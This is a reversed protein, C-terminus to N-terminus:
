STCRTSSSTTTRPTTSSRAPRSRPGCWSRARVSAPAAGGSYPRTRGSGRRPAPGPPCSSTRPRTFDLLRHNTKRIADNLAKRLTARIRQMTAPGTTRVGQVTARVQPDDSQRAIEIATNRDALVTFMAEIHEVRLQELAIAGLHPILHVRIHSEYSRTTSPEIKRRSALWQPLYEGLTIGVTATLGARIRKAVTDRDQLPKGPKVAKLLDAIEVALTSDDGALALLQNAKDLDKAAGDRSDFTTRRLQRRGGDATPPLELQYGWRGTPPVGRDARAACTRATTASSRARTTAAPAANSSPDKRWPPTAGQRNHPLAPSRIRYPTISAHRGRRTM